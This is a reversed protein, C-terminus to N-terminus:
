WWMAMGCVKWIETLEYWVDSIHEDWQDGFIYERCLEIMRDICEEQTLTKGNIEFKHYTLDVISVEKYRILREILWEAFATDMSWTEREDFGYEAREKQWEANRADDDGCLNVMMEEDKLGLDTLIKHKEM